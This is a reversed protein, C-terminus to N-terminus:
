KVILAITNDARNTQIPLKIVQSYACDIDNVFDTMTKVDQIDEIIYLGNDKLKHYSKNFFNIHAYPEHLGDEIIIDFQEDINNWMELISKSSTQDCYYTKIREEEFLIEKDIDAGFINALPLIEKFARLSAGPKGNVGMNSKLNINNTGLGLEFLNIPKDYFNLEKFIYDYLTIYNHATSKDSGHRKFVECADTRRDYLKNSFFNQLINRM